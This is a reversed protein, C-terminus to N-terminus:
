IIMNIVFLASLFARLYAFLAFSLSRKGPVPEMQYWLSILVALSQTELPSSPVMGNPVALQVWVTKSALYSVAPVTSTSVPPCNWIPLPLFRLFLIKGSDTGFPVPKM